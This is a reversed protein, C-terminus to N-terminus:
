MFSLFLLSSTLTAQFLCTSSLTWYLLSSFAKTRSYQCLHQHNILRKWDDAVRLVLKKRSQWRMVQMVKVTRPCRVNCLGEMELPEELDGQWESCVLIADSLNSWDRAKTFIMEAKLNWTLNHIRRPAYHWDISTVTGLLFISLVFLGSATLKMFCTLLFWRQM